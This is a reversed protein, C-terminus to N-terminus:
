VFVFDISETASNYEMKVSGLGISNNFNPNVSYNTLETKTYYRDDHNHTVSAIGAETLTQNIWSSISSDYLLLEGDAVSSIAVDSIDNISNITTGAEGAQWEGATANWVLAYGDTPSSANVDGIDNLYNVTVGVLGTQWEGAAANWILGEGDSPTTNVNSLDNLVHTHTDDSKEDLETQLNTIDGIVHGHGTDSKTSPDFDTIESVIHNHANPDRSDSLRSDTTDILTADSIKANLESLTASNHLSGALDHSTPTRSDSLRSDNGECVTDTTSGFNKNFATNKSFVPEYTGSHDHLDYDSKFSAIDVGDVNGILTLNGSEDLSMLTETKNHHTWNFANASGTNTDIDFTIDGDSYISFDANGSSELNASTDFILNGTITDGTNKIYDDATAVASVADSDTYNNNSTWPTTGDDLKGARLNDVETQTFDDAAIPTSYAIDTNPVNGLGVDDKTTAQARLSAYTGSSDFSDGTLSIVGSAYTIGSGGSLYAEVDSDSYNTAGDEINLDARVEAYSRGELGSATFKAYDNDAVTTSDIKVIQNSGIGVDVNFTRDTTLDGGGTLGTGATLTITDDVKNDLTTQLNDVNAITHNHSDDAVTATITINTSGDFSASGSLDGGLSITRSTELATATDANGTLNGTIGGDATLMGKILLEDSIHLYGYVITSDLQAM